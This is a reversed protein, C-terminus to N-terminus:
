GLESAGIDRRFSSDCDLKLVADRHADMALQVASNWRVTAEAFLAGEAQNAQGRAIRWSLCGLALAEVTLIRFMCAKEIVSYMGTDGPDGAGVLELANERADEYRMKLLSLAGLDRLEPLVTWLQWPLEPGDAQIQNSSCAALAGADPLAQRATAKVPESPRRALSPDAAVFQTWQRNVWDLFLWVERCSWGNIGELLVTEIDTGWKFPNTTLESMARIGPLQTFKARLTKRRKDARVSNSDNWEMPELEDEPIPRFREEGLEPTPLFQLFNEARRRLDSM